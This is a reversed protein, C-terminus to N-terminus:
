TTALIAKKLYTDSQYLYTFLYTKQRTSQRLAEFAHMTRHGNWQGGVILYIFGKEMKSCSLVGKM